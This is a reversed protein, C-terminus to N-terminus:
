GGRPSNRGLHHSTTSVGTVLDLLSVDCLGRPSLDACQAQCTGVILSAFANRAFTNSCTACMDTYDLLRRERLDVIYTQLWGDLYNHKLLM